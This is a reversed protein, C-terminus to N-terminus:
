SKIVIDDVLIPVPYLLSQFEYIVRNIVQSVTPFFFSSAKYLHCHKSNISKTNSLEFESQKKIDLFKFVISVTVPWM